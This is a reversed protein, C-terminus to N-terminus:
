TADLADRLLRELGLVKRHLLDAVFAQYSPDHHLERALHDDIQGSQVFWRLMRRTGDPIGRKDIM